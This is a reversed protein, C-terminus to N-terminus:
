VAGRIQRSRFFNYFLYGLSCLFAFCSIFLSLYYLSQPRFYLIINFDEKGVLKPDIYWGNAYENVLLHYKKPLPKKFLYLIDSPTFKMEHKLEKTNIYPYEAIVERQLFHTDNDELCSNFYLKWGPHYSDSFVLFFPTKANKINIIYKTPNIRYFIVNPIKITKVVSKLDLKMNKNKIFLPLDYFINSSLYNLMTEIKDYVIINASSIYIRPLFFSQNIRYVDFYENNIIDKIYGKEKYYKIKNITKFLFQYDVDKHYIFYKINFYRSLPILWQSKKEKLNNWYKGYNWNNFNYSPSNMMVIPHDFLQFTIDSGVLKWKPYWVWGIYRDLKNYPISFFKFLEKEKNKDQALLYYENPIKVLYSYTKSNLYNKGKPFTVSYEKQMKGFFFPYVSVCNVFFLVVILHKIISSKNCNLYVIILIFFPMFIFIKDSTRLPLFLPFTFISIIYKENIIGKLKSIFLVAFIILIIFIINYAYEKSYKATKNNIISILMIIILTISFYVMFSYNNAYYKVDVLLFLLSHFSVAQWIIWEKIPIILDSIQENSYWNILRIMEVIQPLVSWLVSLVVMFIYMCIKKLYERYDSKSADFMHIMIVFLGLFISLSVFFAINGNAINEIFFLIGLIALIYYSKKSSFYKYTFAFILPILVYLFPFPSYGWTYYFYSFVNINFIYTLSLLIKTTIDITNKFYSLSSYFSWFSLTLFIFYYLFSQNSPSLSLIKSLGYLIYYYISYSYFTLFYGEGQLHSWIYNLEKLIKDFNFYQATDGGVIVYGPPFINLYSIVLILVQPIILIFCIKFYKINRLV